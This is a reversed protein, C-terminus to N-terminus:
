YPTKKVKFLTRLFQLSGLGWSVLVFFVGAGLAAGPSQAGVSSLLLNTHFYAKCTPWRRLSPRGTQKTM